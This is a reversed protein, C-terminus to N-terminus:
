LSLRAQRRHGARREFQTLSGKGDFVGDKFQGEYVTGDPLTMQGVGDKIQQSFALGAGFFVFALVLSGWRQSM